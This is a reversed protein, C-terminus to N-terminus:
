GNLLIETLQAPNSVIHTAGSNELEERERFGWLVGIGTMDCAAATGMDASTDGIMWMRKPDANLSSAILRIGSPDPKHKIEDSFGVVIDFIDPFFKDVCQQTFHHNKNSLVALPMKGHVVNILEPIGAYPSTQDWTLEYHKQFGAMLLETNQDNLLDSPLCREAARKVGNGVITNFAAIPQPPCSMDALSANFANGISELTDLLTGDLDFVAVRTSM